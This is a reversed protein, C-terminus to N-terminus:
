RSLRTLSNPIGSGPKAGPAVGSLGAVLFAGANGATRLVQRRSIGAPDLALSGRAVSDGVSNREM